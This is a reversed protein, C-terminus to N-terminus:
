PAATPPSTPRYRSARRARGSYKYLAFGLVPVALILLYKEYAPRSSAVSFPFRAAYQGKDGATVLGIFKGPRDFKYDFSVSGTPYRRPALHIVTVAEISGTEGTDRLVRVEIPMERLAADIADLVVVTPGTEPIDGCFERSGTAEPQYVTFHMSYSGLQLKCIDKDIGLGGHAVAPEHALGLLLAATLVTFLAPSGGRDIGL